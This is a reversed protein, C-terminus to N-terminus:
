ARPEAPHPCSPVLEQPHSREWESELEELVDARLLHEIADASQDVSRPTTSTNRLLYLEWLRHRRVARVAERRGQSTLRYDGQSDYRLDNNQLAQQILQSLRVSSWTRYASLQERRIPIDSLVEITGTASLHPEIIEFCARLLDDRGIRRRTRLTEMGAWVLGHRAGFLLSFFFIGAACLVIVAGAAIRPIAASLLVGLGASLGGLLGAIMQMRFLRYTWFKAAAAPLVLLAVVLLLGVSQMGLVAMGIVLVTLLSDLGQVPWGSAAAYSEDFCLVAFEKAMLACVALIVLTAGTIWFVDSALLAAARGFVFESLGASQGTPLGQIMTLLIVGTGFFLGLTLALAADEHIRRIRRLMQSCLLGLAATSAAGAMLGPFWRGQGPSFREMILFALGVGPLAAHSAVDGILARRRLLMLTGVVGGAIGLLVSGLLVVRTNYDQLFLARHFDFM